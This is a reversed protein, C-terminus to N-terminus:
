SLEAKNKYSRKAFSYLWSERSSNSTEANTECKTPPGIESSSEWDRERGNEFTISLDFAFRKTVTRSEFSPLKEVLQTM